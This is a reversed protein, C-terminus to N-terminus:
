QAHLYQLDKNKARRWPGRPRSPLRESLASAAAGIPEARVDLMLPASALETGTKM